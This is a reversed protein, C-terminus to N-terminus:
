GHVLAAELTARRWGAVSGAWLWGAKMGKYQLM